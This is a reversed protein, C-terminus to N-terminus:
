KLRAGKFYRVRVDLGRASRGIYAFRPHQWEAKRGIKRFRENELELLMGICPFDHERAYAELLDCSRSLLTGILRTGRHGPAVFGRWFYVPQGLQPPTMPIATCVGAVNEHGDRALLVVQKLRVRAEAENPIAGHAKWFALLDTGDAASIQPWTATLEFAPRTAQM